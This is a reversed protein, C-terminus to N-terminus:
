NRMRFVIHLLREQEQALVVLLNIIAPHALPSTWVIVSSSQLFQLYEWFARISMGAQTDASYENFLSETEKIAQLIKKRTIM